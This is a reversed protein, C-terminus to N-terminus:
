KRRELGGRDGVALCRRESAWLALTSLGFVPIRWERAHWAPCQASAGVADHRRRQSRPGLTQPLRPQM